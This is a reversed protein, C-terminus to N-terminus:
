YQNSGIPQYKTEFKRDRSIKEKEQQTLPPRSNRDMVSFISKFDEVIITYKETEKKPKDFQAEQIKFIKKNPTYVNLITIEVQHHSGKTM